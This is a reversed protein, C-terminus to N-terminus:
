EDNKKDGSGERILKLMIDAMDTLDSDVIADEVDEVELSPKFQSLEEEFNIM